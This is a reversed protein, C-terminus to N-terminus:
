QERAAQGLRLYHRQIDKNWIPANRGGSLYAHTWPTAPLHTMESLQHATYDGYRDWVAKILDRDTISLTNKPPNGSDDKIQIFGRRPEYGNDRISNWLNKFVPGNDWAQVTEDEVLPKDNIALSWGHAIYTLKQLKMQVPIVKAEWIRLFENAVVISSNPLAEVGHM